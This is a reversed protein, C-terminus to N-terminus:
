ETECDFLLHQKAREMLLLQEGIESTHSACYLSESDKEFGIVLIREFERKQLADIIRECPIDLTTEVDLIHIDAPM